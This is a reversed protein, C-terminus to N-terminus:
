GSLTAIDDESQRTRSRSSQYTLRYFCQPINLMHANVCTCAFVYMHTYTTHTCKYTDTHIDHTHTQIYRRTHSYACTHTHMHM